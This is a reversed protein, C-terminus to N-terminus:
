AKKRRRALYLGGLSTLLMLGAAPLPIVEVTISSIYFQTPIGITFDWLSGSGFINLNSVGVFYTGSATQGMFEISNNYVFLDHDEDRLIIETIKVDKSFSLVLTELAQVNDDSRPDCQDDIGGVTGINKCVGLGGNGGDLYAFYNDEASADLTIGDVTWGGSVLSADWSIEGTIDFAGNDIGDIGGPGDILDVFNFVAAGAALIGAASM